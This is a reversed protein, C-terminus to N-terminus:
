DKGHKQIIKKIERKYYPAPKTEGNEWNYFCQASCGIMRSIEGVSLDKAERIEKLSEILMETVEQNNNENM